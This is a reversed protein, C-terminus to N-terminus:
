LILVAGRQIPEVNDPWVTEESYVVGALDAKFLDAATLDAGTLDAGALNAGMFIARTLKARALSANTLNAGALDAETVDAWVLSAESLDAGNLKAGVLVARLLNAETLDVRLLTAGTLNAGILDAGVLIAESLMTDTLDTRALRARSLDSWALEAELMTTEYFDGGHLDVHSLNLPQPGDCDLRRRAVVSLAAAVDTPLRPRAESPTTRQPYNRNTQDHAVWPSHERLYGTLIEMIPPHDVVSERAIRELAYIGGLRVDIEAHGLQDIARTFRETIQGQQNLAFTKATYWAGVVAIGGALIALLSTRVRGIEAAREGPSLGHTAALWSPVWKVVLPILALAAIAGAVGNIVGRRRRSQIAKPPPSGARVLLWALPVAPITLALREKREQGTLWM